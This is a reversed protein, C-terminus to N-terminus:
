DAWEEIVTPRPRTRAEAAIEHMSRTKQFKWGSRWSRRLTRAALPRPVPQPWGRARAVGAVALATIIRRRMFEREVAIRADAGAPDLQAALVLASKGALPCFRCSLRPLGADYVWHYPVQSARIDAWIQTKTWSHVPLWNWVHRRARRPNRSKSSSDEDFAFPPTLRRALSEQARMGMVNLVRAPRWTLGAKRLERVLRTTAARIPGRKADATCYRADASPWMGRAIIHDLLDEPRKGGQGDPVLRSAVIFRLGYTEAHIRALEAASPRDGHLEVLNTGYRADMERTGPWEDRDGLDAFVAVIRQRPYRQADALQVLLRLMTQSDKGGSINVVILDYFALDPVGSPLVPAAPPWAPEALFLEGQLAPSSHRAAM